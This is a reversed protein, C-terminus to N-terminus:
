RQDTSGIFKLNRRIEVQRKAQTLEIPTPDPAIEFLPDGVSVIDGIDAYIKKVIGPIKSKVSIKPM